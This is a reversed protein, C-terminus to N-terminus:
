PSIWPEFDTNGSEVVMWAGGMDEQLRAQPLCRLHNKNLRERLRASWLPLAGKSIWHVRHLKGDCPLLLSAEPRSLVAQQDRNLAVGTDSVSCIKPVRPGPSPGDLDSNCHECFEPDRSTQGCAPCVIGMELIELHKEPSIVM